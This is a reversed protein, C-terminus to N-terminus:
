NLEVLHDFGLRFAALGCAIWVMYLGHTRM